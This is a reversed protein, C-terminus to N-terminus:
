FMANNFCRGGLSRSNDNLHSVEEQGQVAAEGEWDVKEGGSAPTADNKNAKFFTEANKTPRFFPPVLSKSMSM